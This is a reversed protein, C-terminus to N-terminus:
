SWPSSYWAGHMIVWQVMSMYYSTFFHNIMPPQAQILMWQQNLNKQHCVFGQSKDSAATGRTHYAFSRAVM